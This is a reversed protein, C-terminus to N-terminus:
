MTLGKVAATSFSFISLIKSRRCPQSCRLLARHCFLLHRHIEISQFLQELLLGLLQDLCEVGALHPPRNLQDILQLRCAVIHEVVLHAVQGAAQVLRDLGKGAVHVVTKTVAAALVLGHTVGGLPQGIHDFQRFLGGMLGKVPHVLGQYQHVPQVILAAPKTIEQQQHPLEFPLELREVPDVIPGARHFTFRLLGQRRQTGGQGIDEDGLLALIDGSLQDTPHDGQQGLHFALQDLQHLHRGPHLPSLPSPLGSTSSVSCPESM